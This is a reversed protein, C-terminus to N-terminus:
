LGTLRFAAVQRLSRTDYKAYIAVSKVNRHGLFDAIDKLSTGKRLLHTACAHRLAHPGRRASKIGLLGFRRSVTQWMAVATLPRYPQGLTVFVSRCACRPRGKTLYRVIAEGVEYALPYRQYGGRKARKVYFTEERWDIDRLRLGAVESSRLAYISCLSLIARARLSPTKTRTDHRLLRRVDRWTPGKPGAHYKPLTPKSIGPGMGPTCWGREGAYAFFKRLAQAHNSITSIGWGEERKEDFFEDVDNLSVSSLTRGHAALWTLFLKSRSSYGHVTTLSLGNTSRLFEIFDTLEKDYPHVPATPVALRGHFRLWNKAVFPLRGPTNGAKGRRDPGRYVAWARGAREIEDLGVTRLTTLGLFRVVQLMSGSISRLYDHGYGQRMLHFLYQEREELCPATRFRCRASPEELIITEIM